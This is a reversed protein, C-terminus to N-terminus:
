YKKESCIQTNGDGFDIICDDIISIVIPSSRSIKDCYVKFVSANEPYISKNNSFGLSNFKYPIM